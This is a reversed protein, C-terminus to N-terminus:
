RFLVFEVEMWNPADYRSIGAVTTVEDRGSSCYNKGLSVSETLTVINMFILPHM